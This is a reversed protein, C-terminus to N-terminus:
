KAQPINRNEQWKIKHWAQKGFAINKRFAYGSRAFFTMTCDKAQEARTGNFRSAANSHYGNKM